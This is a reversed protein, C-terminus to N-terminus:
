IFRVGCWVVYVFADPFFALSFHLLLSLPPSCAHEPMVIVASQLSLRYTRALPPPPPPSFPLPVSLSRVLRAGTGWLSEVGWKKLRKWVVARKAAGTRPIRVLPLDLIRFVLLMEVPIIRKKICDGRGMKITDM